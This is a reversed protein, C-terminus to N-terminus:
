IAMVASNFLLRLQGDAVAKEGQTVRNKEPKRRVMSPHIAVGESKSNQWHRLFYSCSSHHRMCDLPALSKIRDIPANKKEQQSRILLKINWLPLATNCGSPANIAWFTQYSNWVPAYDLSLKFAVMYFQKLM